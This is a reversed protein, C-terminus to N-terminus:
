ILGREHALSAVAGGHDEITRTQQTSVTDPDLVAAYTIKIWPGPAKGNVKRSSYIKVGLEKATIRKKM